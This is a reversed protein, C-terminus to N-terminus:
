PIVRYITIRANGHVRRLCTLLTEDLAGGDVAAHVVYDVGYVAGLRRFGAVDNERLSRMMDERASARAAWPVYPNSFRPDVAVARAGLPGVLTLGLTDNALITDDPGVTGRLWTFAEDRNPMSTWQAAPEHAFYGRTRTSVIATECLAAAFLGAAGLLASLGLRDSSVRRASPALRTWAMGVGCGILVSQGAKLYFLFHHPPVMRPWGLRPASISYVLLALAVAMWDPFWSLRTEGAAGRSRSFSWPM